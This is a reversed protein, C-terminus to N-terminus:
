APLGNKVVYEMADVFRGVEELTSYVSPSIRLGQFQAHNISVTIIRHEDWLWDRLAVTDEGEIQVNAIGCAFGPKLSTNV